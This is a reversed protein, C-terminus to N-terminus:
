NIAGDTREYKFYKLPIKTQIGPTIVEDGYSRGSCHDCANIYPKDRLFSRIEEKSADRVILYDEKYDPIAQLKAANASFPCRFLIGDHLTALNKACCADFIARQAEDTRRHRGLAACDTWGNAEESVYAIGRQKLAEVLPHLNRSLAYETIFFRVKPHSM